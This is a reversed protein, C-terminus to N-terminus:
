NKAEPSLLEIFMEIPADQAAALGFKKVRTNLNLSPIKLLPMQIGSEKRIYLLSQFPDNQNQEKPQQVEKLNEQYLDRRKMKRLGEM